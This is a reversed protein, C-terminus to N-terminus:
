SARMRTEQAKYIRTGCADPTRPSGPCHHSRHSRATRRPWRGLRGQPDGTQRGLDARTCTLRKIALFRRLCGIRVNPTSPIGSGSRAGSSARSRLTRSMTRTKQLSCRSRTANQWLRTSDALTRVRENQGLHAINRTADKRPTPWSRSRQLSSASPVRLDRRVGSSLPRFRYPSTGHECQAARITGLNTTAAATTSAM